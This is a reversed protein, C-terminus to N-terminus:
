SGLFTRELKNGCFNLLKRKMLALNLNTILTKAFLVYFCSILLEARKIM